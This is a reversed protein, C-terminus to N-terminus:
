TERLLAQYIVESNEETLRELKASAVFFFRSAPKKPSPAASQNRV